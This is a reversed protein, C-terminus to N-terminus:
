AAASVGAARLVDLMWLPRGFVDDYTFTIVRKNLL